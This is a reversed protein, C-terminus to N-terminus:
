KLDNIARSVYVTFSVIILTFGSIVEFITLFKTLGLMPQIDGYGLTTITVGSFYISNIIDISGGKFTDNFFVCLSYYLIGYLFIFEVYSYMALHIRDHYKLTSQKDGEESKKLHTHADNYFAYFIELIRSTSWLVAIFALVYFFYKIYDIQVLISLGNKGNNFSDIVFFGASICITIILSLKTMAMMYDAFEDPYNSKVIESRIRTPMFIFKLTALKKADVKIKEKIDDETIIDKYILFSFYVFFM